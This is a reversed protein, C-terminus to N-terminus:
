PTEQLPTEARAALALFTLSLAALARLFHFTKM